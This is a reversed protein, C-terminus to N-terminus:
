YNIPIASGQRIINESIEFHLVRKLSQIDNQGFAFYIRM